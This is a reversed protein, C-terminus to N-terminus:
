SSSDIYNRNNNIVLLHHCCSIYIHRFDCLVAFLQVCICMCMSLICINFWLFLFFKLVKWPLVRLVSTIIYYYQCCTTTAVSRSFINSFLIVAFVRFCDVIGQSNKLENQNIQMYIAYWNNCNQTRQLFVTRVIKRKIARTFERM